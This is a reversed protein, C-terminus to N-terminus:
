KNGCDDQKLLVRLINKSVRGIREGGMREQFSWM